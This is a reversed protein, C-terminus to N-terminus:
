GKTNIIINRGNYRITKDEDSRHQIDVICYYGDNKDSIEVDIPFDYTTDNQLDIVEGSESINVWEVTYLEKLKGPRIDCSLNTNRPSELNSRLFAIYRNREENTYDTPMALIFYYYNYCLLLLMTSPLSSILKDYNIDVGLM